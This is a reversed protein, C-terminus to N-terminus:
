RRFSDCCNDILNPKDFRTALAYLSKTTKLKLKMEYIKKAQEFLVVHHM